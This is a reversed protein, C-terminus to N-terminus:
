FRFRRFWRQGQTNNPVVMSYWKSLTIEVNEWLAKIWHLQNLLRTVTVINNLESSSSQQLIIVVVPLSLLPIKRDVGQLTQMDCKGRDRRNLRENCHSSQCFVTYIWNFQTLDAQDTKPTVLFPICFKRQFPPHHDGRETHTVYKTRRPCIRMNFACPAHPEFDLIHTIGFANGCLIPKCPIIFANKYTTFRLSRINTTTHSPYFDLRTTIAWTQFDPWTTSPGVQQDRGGAFILYLPFLTPKLIAMRWHHPLM